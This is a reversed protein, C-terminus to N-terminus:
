QREKCDVKSATPRLWSAKEETVTKSDRLNVTRYSVTISCCTLNDGEPRGYMHLPSWTYSWVERCHDLTRTAIRQDIAFPTHPYSLFDFKFCFITNRKHSTNYVSQKAKRHM